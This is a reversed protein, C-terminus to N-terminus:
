FKPFQLSTREEVELRGRQEREGGAFRRQQWRELGDGPWRRRLEWGSSDRASHGGRRAVCCCLARPRWRAVATSLEPYLGGSEGRTRLLVVLVGAFREGQEKTTEGSRSGLVGGGDMRLGPSSLGATSGGGGCSM